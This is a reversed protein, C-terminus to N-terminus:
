LRDGRYSSLRQIDWNVGEDLTGKVKEQIKQVKIKLGKQKGEKTVAYTNWKLKAFYSCAIKNLMPWKDELFMYENKCKSPTAFFFDLRGNWKGLPLCWSFTKNEKQCQEFLPTPPPATTTQIHGFKKGKKSFHMKLWYFSDIEEM